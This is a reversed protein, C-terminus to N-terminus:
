ELGICVLYTRWRCIPLENGRVGHEIQAFTLCAADLQCTGDAVSMLRTFSNQHKGNTM